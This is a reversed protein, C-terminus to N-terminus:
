LFLAGDRDLRLLDDLTVGDNFLRDPIRDFELIVGEGGDNLREALFDGALSRDLSAMLLSEGDQVLFLKM